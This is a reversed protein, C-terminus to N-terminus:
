PSLSGGPDADAEAEPGLRYVDVDAGTGADREAAVALAARALTEVAELTADPDHGAELSGLAVAAGSGHAALDDTTVGGDPDISGLRPRGADDRAAVLASVGFEAALDAALGTLPDIGVTGRETRYRRLEVDLRDAFGDVASADGVAAAGVTGFDFVHPHSRSRVHGGAVVLRDGAVVVGGASAVGVVTSM